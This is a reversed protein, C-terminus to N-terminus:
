PFIGWKALGGNQCQTISFHPNSDPHLPHPLTSPPPNSSTKRVLNPFLFSFSNNSSEGLSAWHNGGNRTELLMWKGLCRGDQVDWLGVVWSGLWGGVLGIERCLRWGRVNWLPLFSSASVPPPPLPRRETAAKERFASFSKKSVSFWGGFWFKLYSFFPKTLM